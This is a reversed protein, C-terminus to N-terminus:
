QANNLDFKLTSEHVEYWFGKLRGRVIIDM